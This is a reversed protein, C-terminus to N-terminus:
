IRGNKLDNLDNLLSSNLSVAKSSVKNITEEKDYDGDEVEEIIEDIAQSFREKVGELVAVVDVRTTGAKIQRPTLLLTFNGEPLISDDSVLDVKTERIVARMNNIDGFQRSLQEKLSGWTAASSNVEQAGSRSTSAVVITRM